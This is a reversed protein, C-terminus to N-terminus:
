SVKYTETDHLTQWSPRSHRATGHGVDPLPLALAPVYGSRWFSSLTETPRELGALMCFADAPGTREAVQKQRDNLSHSLSYAIFLRLARVSPLVDELYIETQTPRLCVLDIPATLALHTFFRGIAADNGFRRLFFDYGPKYVGVVNDREWAEITASDAGTKAMASREHLRASAEFIEQITRAWEQESYLQSNLNSRSKWVAGVPIGWRQSLYIFTRNALDIFEGVTITPRADGFM